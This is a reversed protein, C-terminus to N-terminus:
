KPGRGRGRGPNGKNSGKGKNSSKANSSSKAKNGNGKGSSKAGGHVMWPEDGGYEVVLVWTADGPEPAGLQAAPDGSVLAM